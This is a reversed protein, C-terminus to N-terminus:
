FGDLGNGRVKRNIAKGVELSFEQIIESILNGLEEVVKGNDSHILLLYVHQNKVIGRSEVASLKDRISTSREDVFEAVKSLLQKFLENERSSLEGEM